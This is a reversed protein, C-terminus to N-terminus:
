GEAEDSVALDHGPTPSYSDARSIERQQAIRRIKQVEAIKLGLQPQNMFRVDHCIVSRSKAGASRVPGYRTLYVKYM